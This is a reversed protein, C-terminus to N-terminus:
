DRPGRGGRVDRLVDLMQPHLAHNAAVIQRDFLRLPGGDYSTVRGGAERVLLAGAAIDWAQLKMEWYGDLWGRAVFALDLAASGARRIGQARRMFAAHEAVNNDPSTQRDYPFGTALLARGLETTSSVTLRRVAGDRDLVTAGRGRACSYVEQRWVDAVVGVQLEGDQELALSVSVQPFGHAFNTTGDLPDVYWTPGGDTGGRTGGEELVLRCGPFAEQLRTAILEESALDVETVLDVQGKFRVTSQQEGRILAAAAAAIAVARERVEHLEGWACQGM